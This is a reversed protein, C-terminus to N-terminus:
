CFILLFNCIAILNRVQISAIGIFSPITQEFTSEDGNMILDYLNIDYKSLIETSRKISDRFVDLVMMKRGMGHWQTGM